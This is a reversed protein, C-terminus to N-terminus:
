SLSSFSGLGLSTITELLSASTLSLLTCSRAWREERREFPSICFPGWIGDRGIGSGGAVVVAVKLDEASSEDEGGGGGGGRLCWRGRSSAMWAVTERGGMRGALGSKSGRLDVPNGPVEPSLAEDGPFATLLQPIGTGGGLGSLVIDGKVLSTM